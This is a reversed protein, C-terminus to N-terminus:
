QIRLEELERFISELDAKFDEPCSLLTGSVFSFFDALDAVQQHEYVSAQCAMELRDMQRIFLNKLPNLPHVTTQAPENTLLIAM